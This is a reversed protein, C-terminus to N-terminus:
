TKSRKQQKRTLSSFETKLMFVAGSLLFFFFFGVFFDKDGNKKRVDRENLYRM